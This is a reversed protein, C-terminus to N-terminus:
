RKLVTQWNLVVTFPAAAGPGQPAVFWFQKGDKTVTLGGSQIPNTLATRQFLKVTTSAQFGSAAAVDVAMLDNGSQFFLQRGDGRWRPFMGGGKSVMWKGGTEASKTGNFPRVYIETQGTENSIYAIWRGDPSFQGLGETFETQLFPFPKREGTLPLVWM